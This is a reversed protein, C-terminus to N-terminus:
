FAINARLGVILATDVNDLASQLLQGDGTVSLRRTIAANYFLEGGQGNKLGGVVPAVFPAIADSKGYYFWGLGFRDHPRNSLPSNGGVGLSLFYRIPNTQEDALGARGFLGWGRKSDCPDVRLFQDFEYTLAWSGDQRAIPVSPLFVLPSQNLSIFERSNWLGGFSHSGPLGFFLTPLTLEPSLVVGDTFLESFGDTETTDRSNLVLFNFIPKKDKLIVFGTGLTSYGIARLGIPNGVFSLNSFQSIGRGGAFPSEGGLTDMKGAYIAFSESFAQTFLVNTLYLRESDEVPISTAITPPLLTGSPGTISEGYRHEARIKLFQGEPGGLKNVDLNALYDGHGSFLFEERRGGNATGFYFNTLNNQLVIGNETLRKRLSSDEGALWSGLYRNQCDTDGFRGPQCPEEFSDCFEQSLCNTAFPSLGLLMLFMLLSVLNSMVLRIRGQYIEVHEIKPSLRIFM